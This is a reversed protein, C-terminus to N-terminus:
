TRCAGSSSVPGSSSCSTSRSRRPSSGKRLFLSGTGGAISGMTDKLTAWPDPRSARLAPLLGFVIGTTCTLALTFLLIRGDPEASILIRQGGTPILALLGRTLIV